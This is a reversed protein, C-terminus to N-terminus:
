GTNIREANSLIADTRESVGSAVASLAAAHRRHPEAESLCEDILRLLTSPRFPKRLCRTAGLGLALKLCARDDAEAGAFAYGSIAILPVTPARQHFLRISEFGHMRPMLIDVIMLDFSSDALAALGDASGDAVAVRFGCAKLWAAIALRVHRDDDVVLIRRM